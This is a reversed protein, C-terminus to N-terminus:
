LNHALQGVIINANTGTPSAIDYGSVFLAGANASNFVPICSLGTRESLMLFYRSGINQDNIGPMGIRLNGTDIGKFAICALPDDVVAGLIAYDTNAHLLNETLTFAADLWAGAAGGSGFTVQIAKIYTILPKIEALSHLRAQSGPLDQYYVVLPFVLTTNTQTNIAEAILTDQPELKQPLDLPLLGASPGTPPYFQIGEAVDHLLPSRVRVADTDVGNWLMQLLRIDSGAAANRVSLSDGSAVTAATFVTDASGTVARSLGITDIAVGM